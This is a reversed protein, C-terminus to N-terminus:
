TGGSSSPPQDMYICCQSNYLYKINIILLLIYIYIYKPNYKINSKKKNNNNNILKCNEVCKCKCVSVM